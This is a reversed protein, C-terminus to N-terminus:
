NNEHNKRKVIDELRKIESDQLTDIAENQLRILKLLDGILFYNMFNFGFSVLVLTLLFM